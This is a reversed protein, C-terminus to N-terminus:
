GFVKINKDAQEAIQQIMQRIGVQWPVPKWDGISRMKSADAICDPEDPRMPYAGKNVKSRQGTEDWIFDIVDSISPAIGTGVPIDQYGHLDSKFVLMIANVVDSVAIIDRHQTGVTTNVETGKVMGHIVSPLFRSEPEDAGYLMELQLNMFDIGHKEVYFRGFESFMKKSFSYMNFSDPLGTDITLYRKTGMEVTKNLVELPFEINADLVNRYLLTGRGYNCAMNIVYDFPVYQAATEVADISAPIWQIRDKIDEIRSLNSSARKTCVVSYGEEVLKRTVKSGLYGNGGLILINLKKNQPERSSAVQSKHQM